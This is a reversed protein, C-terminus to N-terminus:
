DNPFGFPGDAFVGELLEGIADEPLLDGCVNEATQWTDELEAEQEGSLEPFPFDTGFEPLEFTQVNVDGDSSVSIADGSKTVTITGDGEGFEYFGTDDGAEVFVGSPINFDETFDFNFDDFPATADEGIVDFGGFLDLGGVQDSICAAFREFEAAVEPDIDFLGGVDMWDLGDSGPAEPIPETADDSSIEEAPINTLMPQDDAVNPTDAAVFQSGVLVGGVLLGTTLAVIATTRRPSTGNTDVPSEIDTPLVQQNPNPPPFTM